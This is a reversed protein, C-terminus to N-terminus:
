RNNQQYNKLQLMILNSTKLPSQNTIEVLSTIKMSKFLNVNSHDKHDAKEAMNHNEKKIVMQQNEVKIIVSQNEM